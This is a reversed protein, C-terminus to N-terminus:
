EEYIYEIPNVAAEEVTSGYYSYDQVQAVMSGIGTNNDHRAVIGTGVIGVVAAAAAYPLVRGRQTRRMYPHASVRAMVAQVVDVTQPCRQRALENLGEDVTM